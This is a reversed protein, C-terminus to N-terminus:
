VHPPLLSVIGLDGAANHRMAVPRLEAKASGRAEHNSGSRKQHAVASAVAYNIFLVM